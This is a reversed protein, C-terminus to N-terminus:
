KSAVPKAKRGRDTMSQLYDAISSVQESSLDVNLQIKGMRRIAAELSPERGDHFYPGTIAVNRLSPVKFVNEDAEDKTVAIRGKDTDPLYAEFIGFKKFGNGGVLPGNHCTACGVTLFEQLGRQASTSLAGDDGRLFDDFRDRTVLTREFSAIAHALNDYTLPDGQGPFAKAFQRPYSKDAKLREMVSQPDPMGMEIPNLIPGKAQDALTEARGDWFQAVHFGANLVTPSNRGGRKGFAGPSTAENDVGGRNQDVVHCSNCSQTENKSLRKEFFLRKGLAVQEPSDKEAGPMRAPIPALVELAKQRLNAPSTSSAALAAGGGLLGLRLLMVGLTPITRMIEIFSVSRVTPGNLSFAVQPCPMQPQAIRDAFQFDSASRVDDSDLDRPHAHRHM